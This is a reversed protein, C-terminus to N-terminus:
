DLRGVPVACPYLFAGAFGACPRSLGPGPDWLRATAPPQGFVLGLHHPRLETPLAGRECRPPRSNSERRSWWSFRLPFRPTKAKRTVNRWVELQRTKCVPKYFQDNKGTVRGCGGFLGTLIKPLNPTGHQPANGDHGIDSRRYIQSGGAMFYGLTEPHASHGM